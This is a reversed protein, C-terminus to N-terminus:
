LKWDLQVSGTALSLHFLHTLSTSIIRATIHLFKPYLNLVDNSSDEKLACLGKTVDRVEITNFNFCHISTQYPWKLDHAKQNCENAVQQGISAFHGNFDNPTIAESPIDKAKRPILTSLKRIHTKPNKNYSNLTTTFHETKANRVTRVVVNRLSRYKSWLTLRTAFDIAKDALKHAHDRENILQIIGKNICPKRRDKLKMSKFPAHKDSIQFFVNKWENWKCTLKDPANAQNENTNWKLM